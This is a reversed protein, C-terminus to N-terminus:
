TLIAKNLPAKKGFAVVDPATDTHQYAWMKGTIGMGSQVEDLM